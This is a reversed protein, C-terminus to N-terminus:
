TTGVATMFTNIDVLWAISMKGMQELIFFWALFVAFDGLYSKLGQGLFSIQVQPALRNIIGLFTDTMLITLLAPAALQCSLAFMKGMLTIMHTWFVGHGKLFFASAPFQDPAIISYSKVIGDIFLFPGDLQYFIVILLSNYIVGYTSAQAGTTVDQGVMSASGRQNDIVMGSMQVIMFPVTVLFGMFLGIVLEKLALAILHPGWQLPTTLTSVLFPLLIAFLCVTLAMRAPIPMLKAGFFPALAIIPLLRAVTLFFLSVFSSLNGVLSVLYQTELM